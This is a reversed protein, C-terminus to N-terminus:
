EKKCANLLKYHILCGLFSTMDDKGLHEEFRYASNENIKIAGRWSIKDNGESEWAAAQAATQLTIAKGAMFSRKVELIGLGIKGRMTCCLDLTCAYRHQRNYCRRESAMVQIGTDSAFKLWQELCPAMWEPLEYNDLEGKAWLEIMWHVNTGKQRAIELKAPDVMDYSTLDSIISTVNPVHVGDWYYLHKEKDFTLM